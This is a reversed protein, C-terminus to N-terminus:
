QSTGNSTLAVDRGGGGLSGSGPLRRGEPRLRLQLEQLPWGDPPM